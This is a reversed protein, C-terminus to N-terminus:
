SKRLRRLASAFETEIVGLPAALLDTRPIVVVDLRRAPAADAATPAALQRRFVERLVRKARNRVVAGGLRKSAIIGLRDSTGGNPQALVTMFKSSVRRGGDQVATFQRRVKLRVDSPFRAPVDIAL